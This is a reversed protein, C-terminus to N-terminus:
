LIYNIIIIIINICLNLAAIKTQLQTEAVEFYGEDPHTCSYLFNNKYNKNFLWDSTNLRCKDQSLINPTQVDGNTGIWV